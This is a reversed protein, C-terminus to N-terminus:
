IEHLGKKKVLLVIGVMAAGFAMILFIYTMNTNAGTMPLDFTVDNDITLTVDYFCYKQSVEDFVAKSIDAGNKNIEDLTMEIPIRVEIEDKLLSYGDATKVETIIYNQPTLDDWQIKGEADTTATYEDGEEVGKMTFTVNKLPENGDETKKYITVSGTQVKDYVNVALNSATIEGNVVDNGDYIHTKKGNSDQKIIAKLGTTVDSGNGTDQVFKMDGANQYYLPASVEKFTYTGILYTVEGNADVYLEDSDLVTGDSMTYSHVLYAEKNCNLFGDKDTKLYWTKFPKGSTDGDTNTYYALEFVAGEFSAIGQEVPKRTEYDMKYIQLSFPANGVPEKCSVTATEGPKVTVKHIGNDSGDNGSGDCFLYGPSATFEKVYYDGATVQVTNSEGNKDTTLTAIRNTDKDADSSSAYVGYVAGKLSYCDNGATIAENASTKVLNLEGGDSVNTFDVEVAVTELDLTQEWELPTEPTKYGKPVKTEVIKWTHTQTKLDALASAVAKVTADYAANYAAELNEYAKGKLSAQDASSLKSYNTVYKKTTSQYATYLTSGRWHYSAKGDSDTIVTSVKKGDMYVDFEAGELYKGTEADSKEIHIDMRPSFADRAKYTTSLINPEQTKDPKVRFYLGVNQAGNSTDTTAWGSTWVKLYCTLTGDSAVNTILIKADQSVPNHGASSSNSIRQICQGFLWNWKSIAWTNVSVTSSDDWSWKWTEKTSCTNSRGINDFIPDDCRIMVAFGFGDDYDYYDSMNYNKFDTKTTLYSVLATSCQIVQGEYYDEPDYKRSFTDNVVCQWLGSHNKWENDPEPLTDYDQWSMLMIGDNMNYMSDAREYDEETLIYDAYMSDDDVLPYKFEDDVINVYAYSEDGMVSKVTIAEKEYSAPITIVGTREDYSCEETIDEEIDLASYNLYVRPWDDYSSFEYFQPYPNVQARILEGDIVGIASSSSFAIVDDPDGQSEDYFNLYVNINVMEESQNDVDEALQDEKTDESQNDEAEGINSYETEEENVSIENITDVVEENVSIVNVTDAEENVSMGNVINAEEENVSTENITNTEEKSFNATASSVDESIDRESGQLMVSAYANNSDGLFAAQGLMILALLVAFIKIFKRSKKM